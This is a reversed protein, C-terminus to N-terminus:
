EEKVHEDEDEDLDLIYFTKIYSKVTSMYFRDIPDYVHDELFDRIEDSFHVIIYWLIASFEVLNELIFGLFYPLNSTQIWREVDPDYLCLFISPFTLIVQQELASRKKTKEAELLKRSAPVLDALRNEMTIFLVEMWLVNLDTFMLNIYVPKWCDTADGIGQEAYTQCAGRDIIVRTEPKLYQGVLWLAWAAVRITGSGVTTRAYVYFMYMEHKRRNFRHENRQEATQNPVRRPSTKAAQRAYKVGLYVHRVSRFIMGCYGFLIIPHQNVPNENTMIAMMCIHACVIVIAVRGFARHAKWNTKPTLSWGGEQAKYIQIFGVFLWIIGIGLHYSFFYDM